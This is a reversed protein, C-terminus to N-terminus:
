RVRPGPPPGPRGAALTVEGRKVVAQRRPALVVAEAPHTAPVVVLDAVAGPEVGRGDGTLLHRGGTTAAALVLEIDDDRRFGSRYAVHRARELLDGTGYPGWLDRIGDHGIGTVVGAAALVRLPPVPFSYPAATVVGIGAEALREALRGAELEDLDGFVYCHSAAVRDRLGLATTMEVLLEIDRRGEEGHGHLHLDV